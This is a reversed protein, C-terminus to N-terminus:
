GDHRNASATRRSTTTCCSATPVTALWSTSTRPTVSPVWLRLWSPRLRVVPSCPPATLVPCSAPVSMSLARIMEPDRGDIRPEGRVVRGRVIRSELSHFEEGIKKADEEVGSAIVQEVVRSKIAGIAAYRVAKETIRYAEGLEATALEAVKAKLAENVAPPTWDWPQTGVDAAFENIANIVVQMQEHGYVVAGLMVEESLIAAESEVMLVANATGAVVLDLDSQPLETTTPNLVYQGNMYGVRAAAIPGGFPIGSIALAASAGIMAVIDPSVAPNVSMVTAVV